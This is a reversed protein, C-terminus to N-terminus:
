REREQEAAHDRLLAVLEDPLGIGRRGAATARQLVAGQAARAAENGVLV